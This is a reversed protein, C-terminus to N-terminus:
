FRLIKRLKDGHNHGSGMTTHNETMIIGLRHEKYLYDREKTEQDLLLLLLLVDIKKIDLLTMMGIRVM